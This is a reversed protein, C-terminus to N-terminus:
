LFIAQSTVKGWSVSNKGIKDKFHRKKKQNHTFFKLNVEKKKHNLTFLLNELAIINLKSASYSQSGQTIWESM